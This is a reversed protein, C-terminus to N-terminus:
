LIALSRRTVSMACVFSPSVVRSNCDCSLTIAAVPVIPLSYRKDSRGVASPIYSDGTCSPPVPARHPLTEHIPSGYPEPLSTQRVREPLAARGSRVQLSQDVGSLSGVPELTVLGFARNM